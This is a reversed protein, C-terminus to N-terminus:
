EAYAIALPRVPSGTAGEIKLPARVFLFRRRGAKALEELNLNEMIYIGRRALLVLHGPLEYGSEPDRLGVVDWAINNAGVAAVGKEFLWRSGGGSVGPGAVYREADEWQLANGTHVLVVDEAGVPTDQLSSYEELDEATIAYGQELCPIGKSAAVDLLVGRAVIPRIEEVGFGTFGRCTQVESSPVGGLLCLDEAQHCIADIHTGSHEACM